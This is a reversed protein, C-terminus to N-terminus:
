STECCQQMALQFGRNRTNGHRHGVQKAVFYLTTLQPFMNRLLTRSEAVFKLKAARIILSAVVERAVFEFEVSTIPQRLARCRLLYFFVHRVPFVFTFEFYVLLERLNMLKYKSQVFVELAIM